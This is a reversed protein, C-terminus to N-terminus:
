RIRVLRWSQSANFCTGINSSGSMTGTGTLTYTGAAPINYGVYGLENWAMPMVEGSDINTLELEFENVWTNSWNGWGNGYPDSSSSYDFEFLLKTSGFVEFTSGEVYSTSQGTCPCCNLSENANVGIFSFGKLEEDLNDIKAQMGSLMDFLSEGSIVIEGPSFPLGYNSLLDQIDSVGILSDANGDPNYPYTSQANAGIGLTLALMTLLHKM